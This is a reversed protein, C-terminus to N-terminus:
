WWKECLVREKGMGEAGRLVEVAWDTLPPPGCVYALVGKRGVVPGIAKILDKETFRGFKTNGENIHDTDAQIPNIAAIRKEDDHSPSTAGNTVFLKFTRTPGFGPGFISRLRDLFLISSAESSIDKRVSYLFDVRAPCEEKNQRLHSLISILPSRLTMVHANFFKPAQNPTM